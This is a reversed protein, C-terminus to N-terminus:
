PVRWGGSVYTMGYDWSGDPGRPIFPKGREPQDDDDNVFVLSEAGWNNVDDFECRGVGRGRPGNIRVWSVYRQIREDFFAANTTDSPRMSM